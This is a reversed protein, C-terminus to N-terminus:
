AEVVEANADEAGANESTVAGSNSSIDGSNADEEEFKGASNKIAHAWVVCQATRMELNDAEDETLSDKAKLKDIFAAWHVLNKKALNYEKYTM